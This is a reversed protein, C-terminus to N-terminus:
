VSRNWFINTTKIIFDPLVESKLEKGTLKEWGVNGKNLWLQLEKTDPDAIWYEKVGCSLYRAAKVGLDRDRTSNSLIEIVIDPTGHIHNQIIRSNEELIVIIDPRLVDGGDPLFVDLESLCFAFDLKNVLYAGIATILSTQTFAHPSFPSPAMHLVGDIMDYKFGDDDLDLYEERTVRLGEYRPKYMTNQEAIAGM